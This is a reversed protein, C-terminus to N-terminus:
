NWSSQCLLIFNRKGSQVKSPKPCAVSVTKTKENNGENSGEDVKDTADAWAKVQVDGCKNATWAFTQTSTSGVSLAPVYDYDVCTGDIYYYVYSAGAYGSGQNKIKATFTITDGQKPSGKDWSIEQIILDPKKEECQIYITKELWNNEENSEEFEM